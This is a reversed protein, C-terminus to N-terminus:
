KAASVKMVAATMEDAEIKNGNPPAINELDDICLVCPVQLAIARNCWSVLKLDAYEGGGGVGGASETNSSHAFLECTKIVFHPMNFYQALGHTVTSKGTGSLGFVLASGHSAKKYLSSFHGILSRTSVKDSVCELALRPYMPVVYDIMSESGRLSIDSSDSATALVVQTADTVIVDGIYGALIEGSLKEYYLGKVVLQTIEFEISKAGRGGFEVSVERSV